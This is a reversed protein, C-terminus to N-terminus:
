ARGCSPFPQHTLQRGKERSDCAIIKGCFPPTPYKERVSSFIRGPCGLGADAIGYRTNRGTRHEPIERLRQRLGDLMEQFKLRKAM